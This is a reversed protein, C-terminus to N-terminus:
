SAVKSERLAPLCARTLRVAGFFNTDFQRQWDEVKLGEIPGDVAIGANNILAHLVGAEKKVRSIAQDVSRDDTVDLRVPFLTPIHSKQLQEFHTDSRVGAWVSHGSGAFHIALARGIGTSAGSILINM